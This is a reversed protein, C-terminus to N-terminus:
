DEPSETSWGMTENYAEVGLGMGAQMAQERREERDAQRRERAVRRADYNPNPAIKGVGPGALQIFEVAYDTSGKAFAEEAEELTPFDEGTQCDDNQLNPHSCWHNVAYPHPM